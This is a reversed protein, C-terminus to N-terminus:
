KSPEKHSAPAPSDDALPIHGLRELRAKHSPWYVWAVLTAFGLTVALLSILTASM